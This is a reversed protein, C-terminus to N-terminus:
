FYHNRIFSKGKIEGSINLKKAYLEAKNFRGSLEDLPINSILNSPFLNSVFTLMICKALIRSGKLFMACKGDNSDSPM